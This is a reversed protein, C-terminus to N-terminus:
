LEGPQEQVCVDGSASKGLGIFETVVRYCHDTGGNSDFYETAGSDLRGIEDYEGSTALRRMVTLRPEEAGLPVTWTLMNGGQNSEVSLSAPPPPWPRPPHPEGAGMVECTEDTWDSVSDSGVSRIRYCYETFNWPAIVGSTEGEFSRADDPVTALQAWHPVDGFRRQIEFETIGADTVNWSLRAFAGSAFKEITLNAPMSASQPTSCAVLVVCLLLVLSRCMSCFSQHM